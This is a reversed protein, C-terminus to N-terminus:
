TRPPRAYALLHFFTSLVLSKWICKQELRHRSSARSQRIGDSPPAGLLVVNEQRWKEKMKELMVATDNLSSLHVDHVLVEYLEDVFELICKAVETRTWTEYM